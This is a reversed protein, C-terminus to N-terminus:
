KLQVTDKWKISFPVCLLVLTPRGNFRGNLLITFYWKYGFTEQKNNESMIVHERPIYEFHNKHDTIIRAHKWLM